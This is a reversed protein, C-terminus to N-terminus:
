QLMGMLERANKPAYGYADNNFYIYVDKGERMFNRIMAADHELFEKSYDGSIGKAGHRRMYIFDATAPLANIFEPSDAMCLSADHMRCLKIVEETIWSEHRFEFTNRVPHKGLLELFHQLREINIHFGPPFQWLVVELKEQLQFAREFFLELPEEPNLLRKLHTIYRSGKVSFAFDPPTRDRWKEFTGALPLRYFTVNLEVTSFVGCYYELWKKQPLDDPYFVEKWHKYNFGSCGIHLDPM